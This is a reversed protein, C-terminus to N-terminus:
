ESKQHFQYVAQGIEDIEKQAIKEAHILEDESYRDGLSELMKLKSHYVQWISFKHAVQLESSEVIQQQQNIAYSLKNLFVQYGQMQDATMKIRGTSEFQVLYEDKYLILEELRAVKSAKDKRAVGLAMAARREHHLAINTVPKLRQSKNV